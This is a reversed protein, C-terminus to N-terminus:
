ENNAGQNIKVLTNRGNIKVMKFCDGEKWGIKDINMEEDLIIRDQYLDWNYDLYFM